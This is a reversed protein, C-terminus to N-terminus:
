SRSKPRPLKWKAIFWDVVRLMTAESPPGQIPDDAACFFGSLAHFLIETDKAPVVSPLAKTRLGEALITELHTLVTATMDVVSQPTLRLVARTIEIIAPEERVQRVTQFRLRLFKRLKEDAPIPKRLVEELQTHILQRHEEVWALILADKDPFFQYITGVAIDAERAIDQMTTGRIGFRGFRRKTADMIRSRKQDKRATLLASM